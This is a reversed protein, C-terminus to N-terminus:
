LTRRQIIKLPRIIRLIEHKDAKLEGSIIRLADTRFIEKQKERNEKEKLYSSIEDLRKEVNNMFMPVSLLFLAGYIIGIATVAGTVGEFLGALFIIVAVIIGVVIHAVSIM